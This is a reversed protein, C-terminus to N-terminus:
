CAKDARPKMRVSMWREARTTLSRKTRYIETKAIKNNLGYINKINPIYFVITIPLLM